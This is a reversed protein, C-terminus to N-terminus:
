SGSEQLHKAIAARIEDTLWTGKRSSLDILADKVDPHVSVNLGVYGVKGHGNPIKKSQESTLAHSPM